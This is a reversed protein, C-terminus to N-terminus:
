HRPYGDAAMQTALPPTYTSTSRSGDGLAREGGRHVIPRGSPGNIEVTSRRNRSPSSPLPKGLVRSSWGFHERQSSEAGFWARANLRCRECARRVVAMLQENTACFRRPLRAGHHGATGSFSPATTIEIAQFRRSGFRPDTRRFVLSSSISRTSGQRLNARAGPKASCRDLDDHTAIV